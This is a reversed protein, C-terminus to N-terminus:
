RRWSAGQSNWIRHIWRGWYGLIKDYFIKLSNYVFSNEKFGLPALCLLAIFAPIRIRTIIGFNTVFFSIIFLTIVSFLLIPYALKKREQIINRIGKMAFYLFIYWPITEFLVFLHRKYKLQWPLPGLLSYIFSLLSNKIFGAVTTNQESSVTSGTNTKKEDDEKVDLNGSPNDSLNDSAQSSSPSSYVVERYYVVTELNLYQKLSKIGWFGDKAFFQPLFGLLVFILPFYLLRKRLNVNSVFLWSAMFTVIVAYGVYFRFHSILGLTLYLLIFTKLDFQRFLRIMIWLSLLSLFIVLPDKLMLSGFFVLSPYFSIAVGVILVKGISAGIERTILCALLVILAVLWANFLQGILMNPFVLAYLYGILVPYYHSWASIPGYLGQVDRLSFNGENIRLAIQKANYDYEVFDGGGDGFPQFNFYYIFLVAIVHILLAFLFIFFLPKKLQNGIKKVFFLTAAVLVAVFVVGAFLPSGFFSFLRLFIFLALIGGFTKSLTLPM